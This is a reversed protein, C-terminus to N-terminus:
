ENWSWITTVVQETEGPKQTIRTRTCRKDLQWILQLQESGNRDHRSRTALITRTQDGAALNPEVFLEIKQFSQTNPDIASYSIIARNLLEDYRTEERFYGAQTPNSLDPIQFFDVVEARFNERPIYATDTSLSDRTTYRRISYLSTDIQWVQQEILSTASIFKKKPGNQNCATLGGLLLVFLFVRM